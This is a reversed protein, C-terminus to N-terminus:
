PTARQIGGPAGAGNGISGLGELNVLIRFQTDNVRRRDVLSLSTSWCNCKSRYVISYVQRFFENVNFSYNSGYLFDLNRTIPIRLNTNLESIEDFGEKFGEFNDDDPFNEFTEAFSKSNRYNLALRDGRNTSAIGGINFKDLRSIENNYTLNSFLQLQDSPEFSAEMISDAQESNEFDYGTGSRIRFLRYSTGDGGSSRAFFQHETTWYAVTQDPIVDSQDQLINDIAFFRQRSQNTSGPPVFVPHDVKFFQSPGKYRTEKFFNGFNPEDVIEDDSGQITYITLQPEFTQMLSEWRGLPSSWDRELLTSVDLRATFLDRHTTSDEFDNSRWMTERFGIEPRVDLYKDVQFPMSVRPYLDVRQGANALAEGEQFTFDGETGNPNNPAITMGGLGPIVSDIPPSGTTDPEVVKFFDDRHPDKNNGAYGPEAPSFRGDVGQDLFTGGKLSEKFAAFEEPSLVKAADNLAKARADKNQRFNVFSSDWQFRLPSDFAPQDILDAQVYPLRQLIVDDRDQDD